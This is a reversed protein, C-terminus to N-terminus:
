KDVKRNRWTEVKSRDRQFSTREAVDADGHGAEVPEHLEVRVHKTATENAYGVCRRFPDAREEADATLLRAALDAPHPYRAPRDQLDELELRLERRGGDGPIADAQRM